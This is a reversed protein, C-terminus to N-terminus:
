TKKVSKLVVRAGLNEPLEYEFGMDTNWTSSIQNPLAALESFWDPGKLSYIVTGMKVIKNSLLLTRALNAFARCMIKAPQPIKLDEVKVQFVKANKLELRALMHKLFESKREDVEILNVQLDPYMIAMIIGPFGNGSGFDYIEKAADLDKYVYECAKICDFFHLLDANKETYTSILNLKQNFRLLEVHYLRLSSMVEVQLSEMFSRIRWEAEM